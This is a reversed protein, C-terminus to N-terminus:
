LHSVWDFDKLFEERATDNVFIETLNFEKRVLRDGAIADMVAATLMPSSAVYFTIAAKNESLAKDFSKKAAGYRELAGAPDLGAKIEIAGELVGQPNRISIDPETGFLVKYGNVLKLGAVDDVSAPIRAPPAITGDKLIIELIQTKDLFHKLIIAHVRRSGENGIENRWSGNIQTGLNAQAALRIEEVSFNPDSDILSSILNNIVKSIQTAKIKSLSRKEGEELSKTSFALRGLGKQPLLALSRYYGVLVPTDMILQPHCFILSPHIKNKQIYKWSPKSIGLEQFHSWDYKTFDTKEVLECLTRFTKRARYFFFARLSYQTQAIEKPSTMM